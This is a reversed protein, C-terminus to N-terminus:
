FAEEVWHGHLLYRQSAWAQEARQFRLNQAAPLSSNSKSLIKRSWFAIIM